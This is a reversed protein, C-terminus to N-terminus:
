LAPKTQQLSAFIAMITPEWRAMAQATGTASLVLLDAHNPGNVVQLYKRTLDKIDPHSTAALRYESLNAELRSPLIVRSTQNTDGVATVPLYRAPNKAGNEMWRARLTVTNAGNGLTMERDDEPGSLQADRPVRLSYGRVVNAETVPLAIDAPSTLANLPTKPADILTPKESSSPLKAKAIANPLVIQGQPDENWRPWTNVLHNAAVRIRTALLSAGAAPIEVKFDRQNPQVKIEREHIERHSSENGFFIRASKLPVNTKWSLTATNDGNLALHPAIIQPGAQAEDILLIRPYDTTKLQVRVRSQNAGLVKVPITKSTLPDYVSVKAGAGAINGIVIEFDQDPLDYRTPDLPNKQPNWDHMADPSVVYYPIAFRNAGLQIPLMAFWDRNYVDPHAPTGDGAFVLRPQHEILEAINLARPADIKEGSEMLQTFWKWSNWGQPLLELVRPTLQYNDAELAQYFDPTLLGYNLTESQLSYLYIRDFGKHLNFLAQRLMMKSITHRVLALLRPDNESVGSARQVNQLFHERNWETETEWWEARKWDGTGTFRGHATDGIGINQSSPFLDRAATETKFGSQFYEPFGLHFTPVFPSTERQGMADIADGSNAPHNPGIDGYDGSYYHRSFGAQGPWLLSGADWPWQNSFGSVVKVGPFRHSADSFYDITMPLIAYVSKGGADPQFGPQEFELKADPKMQATRARTKRYIFKQGYERKPEYYNNIDLFNSGFTQENWVEIDFGADKPTGVISRVFAGVNAAYKQWGEFTEASAPVPTGDKLQVDQFPQYKLDLLSIPGAKLDSPLPASLQATGDNQVSTILPFAAINDQLRGLGTYGPRIAANPELQLARDGKHADSRLQARVERMPGPAGHNANLLILPRIHHAKALQLIQTFYEKRDPAVEDNWNLNNWGIEVRLNRIGSEDMLQFLPAAVKADLGNYQSGLAGLFKAAPWTDMYGRWPQNYYSIAGFPPPRHRTAEYPETLAASKSDSKQLAFPMAQALASATLTIGIALGVYPSKM